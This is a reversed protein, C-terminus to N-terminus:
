DLWTQIQDKQIRRKLNKLHELALQVNAEQEYKKRKEM